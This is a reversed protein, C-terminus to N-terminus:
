PELFEMGGSTHHELVNKEERLLAIMVWITKTLSQAHKTRTSFPRPNWMEVDQIPWVEYLLTHHTRVENSVISLLRDSAHATLMSVEVAPM